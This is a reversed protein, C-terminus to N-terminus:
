RPEGYSWDSNCLLEKSCRRGQITPRLAYHATKGNAEAPKKKDHLRGHSLHDRSTAWVPRTRMSMRRNERLQLGSDGQSPGSDLQCNMNSLLHSVKIYCQPHHFQQSDRTVITWLMHNTWSYSPSTQHDGDFSRAAPSWLPACSGAMFPHLDVPTTTSTPCEDLAQYIGFGSMDLSCHSHASPNMPQHTARADHSPARVTSHTPRM